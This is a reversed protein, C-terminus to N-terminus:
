WHVLHLLTASKGIGFEGDIVIPKTPTDKDAQGAETIESILTRFPPRSMIAHRGIHGFEMKCVNGFENEPVKEPMDPLLQYVGQFHAPPVIELHKTQFLNVEETTKPKWVEKKPEPVAAAASQTSLCARFAVRPVTLGHQRVVAVAGAVRCSLM